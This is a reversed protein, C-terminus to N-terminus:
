QAGETLIAYAANICPAEYTRYDADTVSVNGAGEGYFTVVDGSLLNMRGEIICDRVLVTFTQEGDSCLYYNPYPDKGNAADADRVSGRVTLTVAVKRDTYTDAMRYYQEADVMECATLYEAHTMDVDVPQELQTRVMGILMGGVGWSILVTYLVAAAVFIIKQKKSHPSTILLVIGVLPMLFLALVIFWWSHYWEVFTVRSSARSFTQKKAKVPKRNGARYEDPCFAGCIPCDETDPSFYSGCEPCQNLDPRDLEESDHSGLMRGM